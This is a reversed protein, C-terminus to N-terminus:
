YNGSEDTSEKKDRNFYYTLYDQLEKDLEKAANNDEESCPLLSFQPVTYTVKGKKESKFNDFVVKESYIKNKVVKTFDMWGSFAAGKMQINWIEYEDDENKVAIYLSRTYGAGYSDLKDKIDEYLGSELVGSKTRVTLPQTKLNKIENAWVGANEKEYFGKITTLEDLVLFEFPAVVPVNVKNEKDYWKFEGNDSNWDLYRKCPNEKIDSSRSM